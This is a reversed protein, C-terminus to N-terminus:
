RRRRERNCWWKWTAEMAEILVFPALIVLGIAAQLYDSM